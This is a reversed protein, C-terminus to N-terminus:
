IFTLIFHWLFIFIVRVKVPRYLSWHIILLRSVIIFILVFILTDMLISPYEIVKIQHHISWLVCISGFVFLSRWCSFVNTVFVVGAKINILNSLIIAVNIVLLNMHRLCLLKWKFFLSFLIHIDLSFCESVLKCILWFSGFKYNLIGQFSLLCSLNLYILCIAVKM